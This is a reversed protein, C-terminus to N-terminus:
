PVFWRLRGLAEWFRRGFLVALVGGITGALAVAAVFSTVNSVAATTVGWFGILMGVVAGCGLRITTGVRSPPPPEKSM